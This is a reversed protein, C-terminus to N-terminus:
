RDAPPWATSGISLSLWLAAVLGTDMAGMELLGLFALMIQILLGYQPSLLQKWLM